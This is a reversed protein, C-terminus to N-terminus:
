ATTSSSAVSAVPGIKFAAYLYQALGSEEQVARTWVHVSEVTKQGLQAKHTALLYAIGAGNPTGLVAQGKAESMPLTVGPWNIRFLGRVARSVISNTATNVVDFRIVYKLGKVDVGSIEAQEQWEVFTV